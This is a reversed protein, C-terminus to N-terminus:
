TTTTTLLALLDDKKALLATLAEHEDASLHSTTDDLHTGPAYRYTEITLDMQLQVLHNSTGTSAHINCGSAAAVRSGLTYSTSWNEDPSSVPCIRIADGNLPLSDFKWCTTLGVAQTVSNTSTGLWTFNTDGPQMRQWISLYLPITSLGASNSSRCPLWLATLKGAKLHEGGIQAWLFNANDKGECTSHRISVPAPEALLEVARAATEDIDPSIGDAGPEGPIGQEGQEGQEGKLSAIWQAETGVFGGRVASDYASLGSADVALRGQPDQGVPLVNLGNLTASTGLQVTGAQTLSARPVAIAGAPTLAIATHGSELILDAELLVLGASAASARLNNVWSKTAVLGPAPYQGIPEPAEGSLRIIDNLITTSLTDSLRESGDQQWAFEAVASLTAVAPSNGSGVQLATNLADSAIHLPLTFRTGDETNEGEAVEAYALLEGEYDGKAKVGFRLNGANSSGLIIVSLELHAGRKLRLSSVPTGGSKAQVAAPTKEPNIYLNM